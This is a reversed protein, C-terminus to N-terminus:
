NVRKKKKKLFVSELTGRRHEWECFFFFFFFHYSFLWGYLSVLSFEFTGLGSCIKLVLSVVGSSEFYDYCSMLLTVGFHTFLLCWSLLTCEVLEWNVLANTRVGSIHNETRIWFDIFSCLHHVHHHLTVWLSIWLWNLWKWRGVSLKVAEQEKLRHSLSM